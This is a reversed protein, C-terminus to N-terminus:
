EDFIEHLKLYINQTNKKKKKLHFATWINRSLFTHKDM